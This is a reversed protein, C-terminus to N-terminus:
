SGRLPVAQQPRIVWLPLDKTIFWLEQQSWLAPLRVLPKPQRSTPEDTRKSQLEFRPSPPQPKTKPKKKAPRAACPWTHSASRLHSHISSFAQCALYVVFIQCRCLLQSSLLASQIRSKPFVSLKVCTHISVRKYWVVKATNRAPEM